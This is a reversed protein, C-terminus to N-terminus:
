AQACAGKAIDTGSTGPRAWLSVKAAVTDVLAVTDVGVRVSAVVLCSPTHTALSKMPLPAVGTAGWTTPSLTTRLLAETVLARAILQSALTFASTSSDSWRALNATWKSEKAM